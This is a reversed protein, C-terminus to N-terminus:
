MMFRGLKKKLTVDYAEEIPVGKANARCNTCHCYWYTCHRITYGTHSRGGESTRRAHIYIYRMKHVYHAHLQEVQGNEAVEREGLRALSPLTRNPGTQCSIKTFGLSSWRDPECIKTFRSGFRWNLEFRDPEPEWPIQVQVLGKKQINSKSDNSLM